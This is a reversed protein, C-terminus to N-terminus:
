QKEKNLTPAADPSSAGDPGPNAGHVKVNPDQEAEISFGRYNDFVHTNRWHQRPTTVDVVAM